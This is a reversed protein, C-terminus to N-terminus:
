MQTVDTGTCTTGLIQANNQCASPALDIIDALSTAAHGLACRMLALPFSM